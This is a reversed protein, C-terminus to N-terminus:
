PSHIARMVVEDANPNLPTYMRTRLHCAMEPAQLSNYVFLPSDCSLLLYRSDAEM